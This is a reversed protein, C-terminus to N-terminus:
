QGCPLHERERVILNDSSGAAVQTVDNEEKRHISRRRFSHRLKMSGQRALNMFGSRLSPTRSRSPRRNLGEEDSDDESYYSDRKNNLHDLYQALHDVIESFHPRESAYKRWCNQMLRYRSSSCSPSLSLFTLSINTNYIM